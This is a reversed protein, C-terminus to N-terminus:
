EKKLLKQLVSLRPDVETKICSCVSENLNAGCKSCLGKCLEDCIPKMPESLLLAERIIGAIDIEDGIFYSQETDRDVISGTTLQFKEMFPIKVAATYDKLCRNCNRLIKTSICGNIQLFSGINVVEGEVLINGEVVLSDLDIEAATVEFQFSQKSGIQSKVHFVDIIM